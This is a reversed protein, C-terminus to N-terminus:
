RDILFPTTTEAWGGTLTRTRIFVQQAATPIEIGSQSRTFPQENVHPHGLVRTGLVTGGEAEVRWGDAYDDWGTDAHRLTVDFRWGSANKEAAIDEVVAPDASVSTMSMILFLSAYKM